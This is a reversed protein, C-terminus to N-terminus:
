ANRDFCGHFNPNTVENDTVPLNVDTGYVGGKHFNGVPFVQDQTKGYQRILRRLDGLRQGRGFQWFAKERFYLNSRARGTDGADRLAAMAAPKFMGLTQPATRLANLITMM